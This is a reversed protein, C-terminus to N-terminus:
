NKWKEIALFDWVSKCPANLGSEYDGCKKCVRLDHECVMVALRNQRKLEADNFDAPVYLVHGLDGTTKIHEIAKGPEATRWAGDLGLLDTPKAEIEKLEKRIHDCMGQTRLSPGFTDLSWRQQRRLHEILNM